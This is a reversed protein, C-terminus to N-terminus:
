QDVSAPHRGFDEGCLSFVEILEGHKIQKMGIRHICDPWEMTGRLSEAVSASICIEGCEAADMIRQAMNIGRGNVDDNGNLDKLRYVTGQNIGMRIQLTGDKAIMRAVQAACDAADSPHTFFVLAMGDGTPRIVVTNNARGRRFAETAKVYEELQLRSKMQQAPNLTTFGVIDTFFVSVIEPRLTNESDATATAEPSPGPQQAPPVPSAKRLQRALNLLEAAPVKYSGFFVMDSPNLVATHIKKDVRNLATGNV